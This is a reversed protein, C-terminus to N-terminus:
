LQLLHIWGNWRIWRIWVNMCEYPEYRVAQHIYTYMYTRVCYQYRGGAVTKVGTEPDLALAMPQSVGDQDDLDHVMYWYM